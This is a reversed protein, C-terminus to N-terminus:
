LTIMSIVLPTDLTGPPLRPLSTLSTLLHVETGVPFPPLAQPRSPNGAASSDPDEFVQGPNLADHRFGPNWDAGSGATHGQTLGDESLRLKRMQLM